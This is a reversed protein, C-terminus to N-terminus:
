LGESPERKIPENEKKVPLIIHFQSGRGESSEAFIVGSHNETIRKSIALGIGTGAYQDTSNLRQFTMFIKEAFKQDFGIGNDKFLLEVYEGAPNLGTYKKIEKATLRKSAIRIEPAIGVKSFKLSNSIMNYFLQNMQVPIANIVPLKDSKITAKKQEILIEFDSLVNQLIDELDTPQFLIDHSLLRSYDLLSQILVKMRGAANEIKNLYISADESLQDKHKVKLRDSFTMIKRLPEQLDHSAVYSFSALEKNMKELEINKREIDTNMKVLESIDRTISLVGIIENRNNKLPIMFNEGWGDYAIKIKPFHLSQGMNLVHNSSNMWEETHYEPIVDFLFKGLVDKKKLKVSQESKKNWTTIKLNKDYSLIMLPSSEILLEAFTKEDELAKNIKELEYNQRVVLETQHRIEEEAKKQETLDRTLKTFGILNKEEDQLATILMSAWFTTGDKRVRWGEYLARKNAAADKLIREPVMAAKDDETYFISFNKGIIESASYGKIKEAGKNWDQINGEKNLYIIAYDEIQEIMLHHRMESQLLRFEMEVTQTIDQATGALRIARANNDSFVEGKGHVTRVTGDPQVIRHIFDYPKLNQSADMITNHVLEKDESHICKIYNAYTNEFHQPDVGFIRYLEDSWSIINKEIDWEWSGIHALRQAENLQFNASLISEEALKVETMDHAIALAAYVNGDQDRLPTIYNQIYNGTVPSKYVPNQIYEGEFVRKLDAEGKTNKAEPFLELLTKGIMNERKFGLAEECAKNISMLKFNKDYVAIWEHSSDLITEIFQNREKLDINLKELSQKVRFSDSVERTILMVAYIGEKNKLPVYDLDFYREAVSSKVEKRNIQEGGLAALIDKYVQKKRMDPDVEEMTKGLIEEPFYQRFIKEATKNFSIFRLDRDLVIIMDVSSDLLTQVFENQEQLTANIMRIEHASTVNETVDRMIIMVSDVIDNSRLPVYYLDYYNQLEESKVGKRSIYEGNLGAVTDRFGQTKEVEPSNVEQITRGIIDPSKLFQAATKNISKFRLDQGVILIMDVSSDFITKIFENQENIEKTREMVKMELAEAFNKHDDIDTSTGLWQIIQREKDKIPIARALFWKYTEPKTHEKLRFEFEFAEGSDLSKQFVKMGSEIDDPHLVSLKEEDSYGEKLGTFEYWRKNYYNMYGDPKATWVIQPILDAIQRFRGESEIIKDEYAKHDTIDMVTGYMRIPENLENHVVKGYVRIWRVSQDNLIVRAEYILSGKKYSDEVAADRVWKDEKHFRDILDKHSVGEVQEFGFINVLRKSSLFSQNKLDWDFTGLEAAEIALRTRIENEEIVKGANVQETIDILTNVTGTMKGSTDYVPQPYPIIHRQSTDPHEVIIKTHTVFGERLALAMPCEDLPLPDGNQKYIKWSGCWQDKGIEPTRGWLDVCADNFTQIYGEADCTYVAVPLGLLLQRHYAESEKVVNFIKSDSIDEITLLVLEDAGNGQVINRANMLIDRTGKSPTYLSFEFTALQNKNTLIGNLESRLRENDWLKEQLEFFVKNITEEHTIQYKEYFAKNASRVRYFNDLIVHPERLTAIISESYIRANNIREQKDILEHNASVLEENTSQLEEKAMELEENLSQLEENSSKLEENVAEQEESITRMDERVQALEKELAAIRLQAFDTAPTTLISVPNGSTSLSERFAILFHPENTNQLPTIEITVQLLEGDTKLPIEKTRFASASTKAKHLANRLEFALEEWAMKMLQFTPEGQPTQLFSTLNGHIHVVDADENIIVAPPTFKSLLTSEASRRFDPVSVEPRIIQKPKPTSLFENRIAARRILTAPVARRLYIRDHKIFPSFLESAANATESNGLLLFGKEKLSYHFTSFAKKQLFTGLYILVNRCSILDMRAFPPDKLFNHPAFICMGRITENVQYGGKRKVFYTNLRKKDVQQVEQASYLGTRAKRIAGESIDSAFIQITRNTMGQELAHRELSEHLCIAMSYAEEGTSCAVVWLRIPEDIPKGKLIAPFVTEKLEDFSKPDRFFSTILILVDQFLIDQEDKDKSLLSLYNKADPLKHIAMRRAIRRRLTPQKYYNFDIGNQQSILSLIEKFDEEDPDSLAEHNDEDTFEIQLIMQKYAILLQPIEDPAVVNDFIDTLPSNEINGDKSLEPHHYGFSIGGYKKLARMGAYGDVKQQTFLIGMSGHLYTEGIMTFFSDRTVAKRNNSETFIKNDQFVFRKNAGILYITDKSLIMDSTIEEVPLNTVSSISSLISAKDDYPYFVLYTIGAEKPIAQALQNFLMLTEPEISLGAIFFFDDSGTPQESVEATTLKM